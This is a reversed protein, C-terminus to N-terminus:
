FRAAFEQVFDKFKRGSTAPKNRDYDEFLIGSKVANGMEAYNRALDDPFGAQLMGETTQEDSFEVWPLEPKGIADGLLGTVATLTLDDSAVYLASKGNIGKQLQEAAKDAIDAPHVMVMRASAPYNSGLIGAHKIMDANNYFNTYFFAPRLHLISVAELGNFIQELDYLGKIPGTGEPLHAGISSLNVVQKVGSAKIASAYSNATENFYRRYDTATFSPPVMTYIADAGKFTQTLFSIDSINGIAPIAGLSEIERAKEQQSSIVTVTHGAALLSQTLPKSINGLSGTVVFKMNRINKQNNFHL